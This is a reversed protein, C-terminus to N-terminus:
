KKPPEEMFLYRYSRMTERKANKESKATNKSTNPDREITKWTKINVFSRAHIVISKM